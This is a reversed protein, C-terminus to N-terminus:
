IEFVLSWFKQDREFEFSTHAQVCSYLCRNFQVYDLVHYSVDPQWRGKSSPMVKPLNIKGLINGFTGYIIMQDSEQVVKEIGEGMSPQTELYMIRKDLQSFNGDMEEITLPEKKQSRYVLGM